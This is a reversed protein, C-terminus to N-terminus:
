KGIAKITTAPKTEDSCEAIFEDVEDRSWGEKRLSSILKTKNLRISPQAKKVLLEYYDGELVICETGPLQEAIVDVDDNLAIVHRHVADLAAQRRKKFYAEGEGCVYLEHLIPEHNTGRPCAHSNAHGLREFARYLAARLKQTTSQM